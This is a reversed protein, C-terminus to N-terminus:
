LRNIQELFWLQLFAADATHSGLSDALTVEIDNGGVKKFMVAIWHGSPAQGFTNLIEQNISKREEKDEDNDSVFQMRNKIDEKISYAPMNFLFVVKGQRDINFKKLAGELHSSWGPYFNKINGQMMQTVKQTDLLVIHRQDNRSFWDSAVYALDDDDLNGVMAEMKDKESKGEDIYKSLLDDQAGGIKTDYNLLFKKNDEERYLLQANILAHLGCNNSNGDGSQHAVQQIFASKVRYKEDGLILKKSLDNENKIGLALLVDNGFKQQLNNYFMIPDSFDINWTLAKVLSILRTSSFVHRFVEQSGKEDMIMDMYFRDLKMEDDILGGSLERKQARNLLYLSHLPLSGGMYASESSGSSKDVQDLKEEEDDVEEKGDEEEKGEEESKFKVPSKEDSSRNEEKVDERIQHDSLQDVPDSDNLYLWTKAYDWFSAQCSFLMSLFLLSLMYLKKKM